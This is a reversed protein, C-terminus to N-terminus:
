TRESVTGSLENFCYFSVEASGTALLQKRAQDLKDMDEEPDYIMTDFPLDKPDILKPSYRGQLYDEQSEAILDAETLIETRYCFTFPFLCSWICGLVIMYIEQSNLPTKDHERVCDFVVVTGYLAAFVM